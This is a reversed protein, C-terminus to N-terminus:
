AFTVPANKDDGAEMVEVGAMYARKSIRVQRLRETLDGIETVLRTEEDDMIGAAQKLGDMSKQLVTRNDPEIDIVDPLLELVTRHPNARFFGLM